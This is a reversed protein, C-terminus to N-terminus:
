MKPILVNQPDFHVIAIKQENLDFRSPDIIPDIILLSGQISFKCHKTIQMQDNNM